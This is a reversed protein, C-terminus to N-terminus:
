RILNEIVNDELRLVIKILNKGAGSKFELDKGVSLNNFNKEISYYHMQPHFFYGGTDGKIREFSALKKNEFIFSGSHNNEENKTLNVIFKMGFSSSEKIYKVPELSNEGLHFSDFSTTYELKSGYDKFGYGKYNIVVPFEGLENENSDFVKVGLWYESAYNFITLFVLLIGIIVSKNIM